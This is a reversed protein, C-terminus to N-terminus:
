FGRKGLQSEAIVVETQGAQQEAPVSPPFLLYVHTVNDQFATYAVPQGIGGTWSPKSAKPVHLSGLLDLLTAKELTLHGLSAKCGGCAGHRKLIPHCKFPGM